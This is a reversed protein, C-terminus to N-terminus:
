DARPDVYKYVEPCAFAEGNSCSTGHLLENTEFCFLMIGYRCIYQLELPQCCVVCLQSNNPEDRALQRDTTSANVPLRLRTRAARLQQIYM